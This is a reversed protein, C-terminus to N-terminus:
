PPVEVGRWDWCRGRAEAPTRMAALVACVRRAADHPEMLGLAKRKAEDVLGDKEWFFRTLETRVTGPHVGVAMAETTSALWIDFAKVLANVAAKSARYAYWGGSRDDTISGLRASFMVWKAVGTAIDADADADANADADVNSADADADAAGGRGRGRVPLFPAFHKFLLMPGITNVAFVATATAASIQSPRKEPPAPLIGPGTLALHLAHPAFRAGCYAAASAISSEDTVDVRVVALREGDVGGGGGSRSSSSSSGGGWLPRAEIGDLLARKVRETDPSRATAVIALDTTQLLHRTLAFGLGRSGPSTLIWRQASPAAARHPPPM